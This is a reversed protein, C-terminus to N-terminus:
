VSMLLPIATTNADQLIESGSQTSLAKSSAVSLKPKQGVEFMRVGLCCHLKGVLNLTTKQNHCVYRKM